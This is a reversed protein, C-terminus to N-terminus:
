TSFGIAMRIDVPARLALTGLRQMWLWLMSLTPQEQTTRSLAETPEIGLTKGFAKVEDVLRANEELGVMNDRRVFSCSSFSVALLGLTAVKTLQWRHRQQAM